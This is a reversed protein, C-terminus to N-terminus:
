QAKRVTELHELIHALDREVWLQLTLNAGLKEHRSVRSWDQPSLDRLLEALSQVSQVFGDLMTELSEEHSYHERAFAAGDFNPFEPNAEAATGRARLGYVSRDVDRVHAAIQHVSWGDRDLPLFPDQVALCARRFESASATLKDLLKARYERIQKMMQFEM